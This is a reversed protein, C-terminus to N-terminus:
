EYLKTKSINLVARLRDENYGVILMGDIDIVPVKAQGTITLIREFELRDKGIDINEYPIKHHDFFQKALICYPDTLISYIKIYKAM